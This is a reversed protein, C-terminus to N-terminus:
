SSGRLESILEDFTRPIQSDCGLLRCAAADLRRKVDESTSRAYDMQPLMWSRVFLMKVARRPSSSRNAGACHWILPNFVVASGAPAQIQVAAQVLFGPADTPVQDDRLGHSGPVFWTAGNTADVDDVLFLCNLGPVFEADKVDLLVQYLDCHWKWPHAGRGGGPPVIVGQYLYLYADRGLVSDVLPQVPRRMLLEQFATSRDGVNIVFGEQGIRYMHERGFRREDEQHLRDMAERLSDTLSHTLANEILVYGRTHIEHVIEPWESM